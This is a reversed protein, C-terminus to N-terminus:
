TQLKNQVAFLIQYQTHWEKGELKDLREFIEKIAAANSLALHRTDVM